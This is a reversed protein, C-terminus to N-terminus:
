KVHFRFSCQAYFMPSRNVNNRVPNLPVGWDLNVWSMEGFNYRLGAGAGTLSRTGAEGPVPNKLSVMGQDCFFAVQLNNNKRSLPVRFEASVSYGSDGLYETQQYGRVSDPGGLPYQEAVVLPEFAYQGSGRFLFFCSGAKQVRLFDLNLRTYNDDAGSGARSSLAYDNKMGGFAEGLGQTGSLFLYNKGQGSMWSTDYLLSLARIEDHSTPYSQFYFNRMSKSTYGYTINSSRAPSRLIPQRVMAGYIRASGLINYVSLDQGMRVDSNAYYVTGKLGRNNLPLNYMAQALPTTQNSPFLELFRASFQNGWGLLDGATLNFGARNEGSYINGFNNYELGMYLPKEDEVKIIVDALDEREGPQLFAKAKLGDFENLLMVARQLTNGKLLKDKRIPEMFWKVFRESYHKNGEVRINGVKGEIVSIKVNGENIDQIPVYARVAIYGKDNYYKQIKLAARKLEELSVEKGELPAVFPSLVSSGYVTNGELSVKRVPFKKEPIAAPAPKEAGAGCVEFFHQKVANEDLPALDMSPAAWAIGELMFLLLVIALLAGCRRAGVFERGNKM